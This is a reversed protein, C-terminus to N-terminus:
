NARMHRCNLCRPTTLTRVVPRTSTTRRSDDACSRTLGVASVFFPLSEAVATHDRVDVDPNFTEENTEAAYEQDLSHPKNNVHDLDSPQTDHESGSERRWTKKSRKQPTNRQRKICIKRAEDLRADKMRKVSQRSRKRSPRSKPM